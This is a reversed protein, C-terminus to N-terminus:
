VLHNKMKEEPFPFNVDQPRVLSDTDYYNRFVFYVRLMTIATCSPICRPVKTGLDKTTGFFVSPVFLYVLVWNVAVLSGLKNM